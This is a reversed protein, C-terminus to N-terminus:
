SVIISCTNNDEELASDLNQVTSYKPNFGFYILIADVINQEEPSQILDYESFDKIADLLYNNETDLVVEQEGTLEEWVDKFLQPNNNYLENMQEKTYSVIQQRVNNQKAIYEWSGDNQVGSFEYVNSNANEIWNHLIKRGNETEIWEFKVIGDRTDVKRATEGYFIYNKANLSEKIIQYDIISNEDLKKLYTDIILERAEEPLILNDNMERIRAELISAKQEAQRQASTSEKDYSANLFTATNATALTTGNKLKPEVAELIKDLIPSINGKFAQSDIKGNILLSQGRFEGYQTVDMEKIGEALNTGTKLKLHYFIGKIGQQNLFDSVKNIKDLINQHFNDTPNELKKFDAYKLQGSENFGGLVLKRLYNQFYTKYSQVGTVKGNISKSFDALSPIIDFGNNNELFDRLERSDTFRESIQKILNKFKEYESKLNGVDPLTDKLIDGELIKSLMRFSTLVNGLQSDADQNKSYVKNLNKFYDYVSSYPPSVYVLKVLKREGPTKEQKLFQNLLDDQTLETLADSVLVFSSGAKIVVKNGSEDYIDRPSSMVNSILKGSQVKYTELSMWEGDYQQDQDYFESGKEGITVLPGTSELNTGLLNNLSTNDSFQDLFIVQGPQVQTYVDILKVFQKSKKSGEKKLAERLDRLIDLGKLSKGKAKYDTVISTAINNIKELGKSKSTMMTLPNTLNVLPMTLLNTYKGNSDKKTLILSIAKHTPRTKNKNKSFIGLVKEKVTKFLGHFFSNQNSMNSEDEDVHYSMFAFRAQIDGDLGRGEDKLIQKITAVIATKNQKHLIASRIKRLIKILNEAEYPDLVGQKDFYIKNEPDLIKIIGNLSDYRSDYNAPKHYENNEGTILGTEETAFSHLLTVLADEDSNDIDMKDQNKNDLEKRMKQEDDTTPPVESNIHPLTSDKFHKLDEVIDTSGRKYHIYQIGNDDQLYAAVRNTEKELTFEEGVALPPNTLTESIDIYTKGNVQVTKKISPKTGTFPKFTIPNGSPAVQELIDKVKKSYKAIVEGKLASNSVTQEPPLTQLLTTSKTRIITGKKARTVGTYVQKWFKSPTKAIARNMDIVYFSREEGQSTSGEKFDIKGKYKGTTNLDTLYQYIDSNKDNFVYGLKEGEPLNELLKNISAQIEDIPTDNRSFVKDGSITTDDEYYKFYMPPAAVEKNQDFLNTLNERLITQNQDKLINGSRFSNGLKTTHLFNKNSIQSTFNDKGKIGGELGDQDFDGLAINVIGHYESYDDALLLDQQSFGSVEDMIVLTPPADNKNIGINYRYLKDDENQVLNEEDLQLQDDVIHRLKNVGPAIKELYEERSFCHDEFGELGLEKALEEARKKSTNVIWLGDLVKQGGEISRLMHIIPKLVGSSKGSGAIGEILLTRFFNIASDSDLPSEQTIFRNKFKNKFEEESYSKLRKELAKNYAKAFKQKINGNTAWAIASYIAQEQGAVPALEDSIRDKYISYFDNSSLAASTALWDIFASDNIDETDSNLINKDLSELDFLDGSLLEALNDETLKNANKAFFDHFAQRMAINDKRQTIKQEDTLTLQRKGDTGTLTPLLELNQIAARLEDRGEWGVPPWNSELVYKKLKNYIVIDNNVSAKDHELLKSGTNVEHIRAYYKLKNELNSLDQILVNATNKDILALDTKLLENSTANFGVINGLDVGDTRAAAISSKLLNVVQLIEKLREQELEDMGYEELRQDAAQSIFRAELTKVFNEISTPQQVGLSSEYNSVLELIPSYAKKDIKSKIRNIQDQKDSILGAIETSYYEIPSFLDKLSNRDVFNLYPINDIDKEIEDLVGLAEILETLLEAVDIEQNAADETTQIAQLRDTLKQRESANSIKSILVQAFMTAPSEYINFTDGIGVQAQALPLVQDEEQYTVLKQNRFKFIKEMMPVFNDEQVQQFYTDNYAKIADSTRLNIEKFLRFATELDDKREGKSYDKWEEKLIKIREPPIEDIKKGEKAQAYSIFSAALFTKSIDEDMEFLAREIYDPAVKGSLYEQKQELLKKLDAELSKMADSKGSGEQRKESDTKNEAAELDKIEAVKKVIETDITNYDQLFSAAFTSKQLALFRFDKDANTLINLLSSDDVKGGNSNLIDTVLKVTETMADKVSQNQNDKSSGKKYLRQLDTDEFNINSLDKSAWTMKNVTELFKDGEGEKILHVLEQWAQDKTWLRQQKAQQFDTQLSGITGGLAGGVFSLGYRNAVDNFASLRTSDGRVYGILNFLSKSVDYLVEESVEEVGEAVAGALMSKAMSSGFYSYDSEAAKKGLNIISRIWNYKEKATANPAPQKQEVLTKAINRFKQREAKLEPLIWQGLDSNIIAYEGLAYGLTLLAAESDSAGEAKAENYSDAVTIGTMYAQSIYKGIKQYDKMYDKMISQAQLANLGELEAVFKAMQDSQKATLYKQSLLGSIEENRKKITSQVLDDAAKQDWGAKGKIISPVYKFIWRQEALQTFTDAGINLMNEFSWAHADIGAESSGQAYDSSSFALSKTFGELESLTSNESGTFIKGLKSLMDVTNLAVRTGIYWPAVGPIFAPVVKVANRVLTGMFSKEKDDSDFFDFKNVFSGDTTLTDFKSLVERGYVDRGNLNEYYFTGNENIKKEGKKHKVIMGTFPDEHEGDEDWQALVRTEFFNDFFSENPAEQWSNTTSDWVKQTQAIERISYPSEIVDNAHILGRKQRLPNAERRIFTEEQKTREDYNAYIDDRFFDSKAIEESAENNAFQNYSALSYNYFRDFKAEDFAGETQFLPNSQIFDLSKYVDKDEISTNNTDLGIVRFDNETFEPNSLMNLFYDNERM